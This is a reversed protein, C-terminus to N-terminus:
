SILVKYKNKEIHRALQKGTELRQAEYQASM